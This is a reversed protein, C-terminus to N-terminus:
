EDCGQEAKNPEIDCECTDDNATATSFTQKGKKGKIWVLDGHSLQLSQTTELPLMVVSDDDSIIEDVYLRNNPSAKKKRGMTLKHPFLKLQNPCLPSSCLFFVQSIQNLTIGFLQTENPYKYSSSSSATPAQSSKSEISSPKKRHNRKKR